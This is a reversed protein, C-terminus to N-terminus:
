QDGQGRKKVLAVKISVVAGSGKRESFFVHTRRNQNVREGDQAKHGSRWRSGVLGIPTTGYKVECRGLIKDVIRVPENEKPALIVKEVLVVGLSVAPAV